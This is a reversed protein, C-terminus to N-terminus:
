LQYIDIMDHFDQLNFSLVTQQNCFKKKKNNNDDSDNDSDDDDATDLPPETVKVKLTGAAQMCTSATTASCAHVNIHIQTNM